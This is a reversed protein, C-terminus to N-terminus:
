DQVKIVEAGRRKKSKTYIKTIEERKRKSNENSLTFKKAKEFELM